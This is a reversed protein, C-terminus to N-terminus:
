IVGNSLLDHLHVVGIVQQTSNLIPIATIKFQQMLQAAKIALEGSLMTKPNVSMLSKVPTTQININKEFARRLDGDTFIGLLKKDETCITTMGLRKKTIELIANKVLTDPLNMPLDQNKHMIDDVTLLLKKGLSGAPHFSAFDAEKFGRSELLAIALADGLVLTATTSSTPALNLPCAEKEEIDIFLPINAYQALPSEGKRTISILPIKFRIIHPILALIDSTSGSYSIAIVIDKETIMGLDGHQAETPHVFFAPTGTSSFTSAIKRAIHGSKGIGTLIVRGECQILMECAQDFSDQILNQTSQIARIEQNFVRQAISQFSHKTQKSSLNM